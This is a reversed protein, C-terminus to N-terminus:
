PAGWAGVAAWLWAGLEQPCEGRGCPVSAVSRSGPTLRPPQFLSSPSKNVWCQLESAESPGPPNIPVGGDLVSLLKRAARTPEARDVQHGSPDLSVSPLLSLVVAEGCETGGFLVEFDTRPFNVDSTWPNLSSSSPIGLAQRASTPTCTPGPTEGATQLSLGRSGEGPLACRPWM